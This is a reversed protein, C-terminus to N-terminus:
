KGPVTSESGFVFDVPGYVSFYPEKPNWRKIEPQEWVITEGLRATLRGAGMRAFGQYWASDGSGDKRCEIILLVEPNTGGAFAYFAGDILGKDLDSFRHLPRDMLRLEVVENGNQYIGTASFRRAIENMQRARRVLTDGADPANVVPKWEIGSGAPAWKWGPKAALL